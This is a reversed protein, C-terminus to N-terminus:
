RPTRRESSAPRVNGTAAPQKEGTSEAARLPALVEDVTVDDGKERALDRKRNQLYVRATVKLLDQKQSEVIGDMKGVTREVWGPQKRMVESMMHLFLSIERFNHDLIVNSVPSAVRAATEVTQSPFSVFLAARHRAFPRGDPTRYLRTDLALVCQSLVPRALLPNKYSGECLLLCKEETRYLVRVKGTTGDGCDAEFENTGTSRMKFKSIGMARWISVAAEPSNVFYRYVDHEVEFEVAPMERFMAVNDLVKGVTARDEPSLKDLPLERLAATRAARASTGKELIKVREDRFREEKASLKPEQPQGEPPAGWATMGGLTLLITSAIASCGRGLRQTRM